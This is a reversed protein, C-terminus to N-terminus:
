LISHTVCILTLTLKAQLTLPCNIVQQDRRQSKITDLTALDTQAESGRERQTHRGRLQSFFYILVADLNVLVWVVVRVLILLELTLVFLQLNAM